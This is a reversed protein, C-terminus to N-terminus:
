YPGSYWHVHLVILESVISSILKVCRLTPVCEYHYRTVYCRLTVTHARSKVGYRLLLQNCHLTVPKNPAIDIKARQMLPINCNRSSCTHVHETDRVCYVVM